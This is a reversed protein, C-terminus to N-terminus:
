KINTIQNFYIAKNGELYILGKVKDLKLIITDINIITNNAYYTIIVRDHSFYAEEIKRSLEEYVEPFLIPKEIKESSALRMIEKNSFVSNFPQWKVFGRDFEKM